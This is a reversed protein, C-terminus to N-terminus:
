VNKEFLLSATKSYARTLPGAGLLIGGFYRVVVILTNDLNKINILELLPRGATNSPEKDEYKKEISGIKYAYVIHRAKKHEKKLTNLIDKVADESNIEYLFGYFKSKKIEFYSESLKKM